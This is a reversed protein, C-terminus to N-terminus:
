THKISSYSTVATLHLSFPQSIVLKEQLISYLPAKLLHIILYLAHCSSINSISDFLDVGEPPKDDCIIM